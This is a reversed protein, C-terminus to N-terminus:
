ESRAELYGSPCIEICKGCGECAELALVFYKGPATSEIRTFGGVNCYMYCQGCDFCLGCSMCRASEALAQEQDITQNIEAEPDALWEDTPRRPLNGREGNKYWRAKVIRTEVPARPEPEPLPLNRLEAHAAEAAMRGQAIAAGAINSGRDDGGVWVGDDLKGDDRVSRGADRALVEPMGFWDPVQAVAVIVLDAALKETCGDKPVPRRRGQEDPAGLRMAQVMAYQLQGDAHVIEIPALLFRFEVGEARADDVEHTAAPMENESRRYVVTVSAGDRRASRAADIATNGGGFVLVRKGRLFEPAESRQQLFEIGSIVDPGDEGPVCLHRAAQAGIGLFLLTHRARLEDLAVVSGIDVDTNLTIGMGLLRDIETELVDNPLRYEPIAHRLMGGPQERQEYITVPYGRRAMQYAFSLGAPGSGVVGVSEDRPEDQEVPLDLARSIAWDGLFRELANISVAGDKGSRVCNDECPHPCIRAISAVLPNRAAITEWARDYAEDLTLGNKEHQAIIGVWGRVDGTNPCNLQCPPQKELQQARTQFLPAESAM